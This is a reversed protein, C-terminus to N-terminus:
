NSLLNAISELYDNPIIQYFNECLSHLQNMKCEQAKTRAANHPNHINRVTESYTARALSEERQFADIVTWVSASKPISPAWSSNFGELHNNTLVFNDSMIQEYKNWISIPFM